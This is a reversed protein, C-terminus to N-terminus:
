AVQCPPMYNVSYLESKKKKKKQQQQKKIKTKNKCPAATVRKCSLCTLRILNSGGSM